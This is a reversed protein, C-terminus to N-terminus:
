KLVTKLVMNESVLIERLFQMHADQCALIDYYVIRNGDIKKMVDTFIKKDSMNFLGLPVGYNNYLFFYRYGHQDIFRIMEYPDDGNEILLQPDFEFFLIPRVNQLLDKSGKLVSFDFGDTDIKLLNCDFFDHRKIVNDLMDIAIDEGVTDIRIKGTGKEALVNGAILENSQGLFVRECLTKQVFNWRHINTKLIEYYKSNGEICLVKDGEQPLAMLVTDGINAGVDVMRLFGWHNRILSGIRKIATDYLPYMIRYLPFEHSLNIQIEQNECPVNVLYDESQLLIQRLTRLTRAYDM